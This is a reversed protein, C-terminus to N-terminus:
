YEIFEKKDIKSITYGKIQEGSNEFDYKSFTSDMIYPM